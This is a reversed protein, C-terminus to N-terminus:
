KKFSLRAATKNMKRVLTLLLLLPAVFAMSRGIFDGYINYITKNENTRLQGKIVDAEWWNTAQSIEGRQNIFASTGTNASRAISRRNEIARLSAFSLHQKYGPTDGWWGDNTIIAFVTAGQHVYQSVYEGFISEYCIIPAVAVTKDKNKFVSPIEQTGLKGSSGGLNISLKKMFPLSNIFPIKEVGLVLKSKHHIQINSSEDLQMASNFEEYYGISSHYKSNIPAKNSDSYVVASSMGVLINLKPFVQTLKLLEEYAYSYKIMHEWMTEPLATEPLILYDTQVSLKQKALDIMKDVQDSPSLGSFKENYPDINPQVVVFELTEGEEQYQDFIRYSLLKPIFLLGLVLLVLRVNFKKNVIYKKLCIFALVNVILVWLSGGLVGTYEYWQIQSISTSFANGMTLWSWSLEWNLHLYEFAIWYILFSIYGEKQGVWKKTLHFLYFVTAMFFSNCVIAMVAGMFDANKIWWTTILNFTFFTLYAHSFVVLKTKKSESLQFEAWLLPVFAIFIFSTLGGAYPWSIALLIGSLLALLLLKINKM